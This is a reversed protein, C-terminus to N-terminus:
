KYESHPLQNNTLATQITSVITEAADHPLEEYISQSLVEERTGKLNLDKTAAIKICSGESNRVLVVDSMANFLISQETYAANLKAQSEQLEIETKKRDSIDKMIGIVCDQGDLSM